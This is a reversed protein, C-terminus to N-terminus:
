GAFLAVLDYLLVQWLVYHLRLLWWVVLALNVRILVILLLGPVMVDRAENLITVLILLVRSSRRGKVLNILFSLHCSAHLHLHIRRLPVVVNECCLLLLHHSLLFIHM